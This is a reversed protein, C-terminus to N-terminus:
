NLLYNVPTAFIKWAADYLCQRGIDSTVAGSVFKTLMDKIINNAKINLTGSVWKM